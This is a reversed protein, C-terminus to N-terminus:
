PALGLATLGTTEPVGLALNMAQVAAGAAGKTLNDIAAVAVARGARRDLTIQVQAANSGLVAASSPWSGDALLHWFPEDATAKEYAARLDDGSVDDAVPAKCTALIGRSMPVLVPTFSIRPQDAGALRM